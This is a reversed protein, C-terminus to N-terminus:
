RWDLLQVRNSSGLWGKETRAFSKETALKTPDGGGRGITFLEPAESGSAPSSIFAVTQADPSGIPSWNKRETKPLLSVDTNEAGCAWRGKYMPDSGAPYPAYLDIETLTNTTCILTNPDLWDNVTAGQGFPGPQINESHPACTGGCPTITGSPWVLFSQDVKSQVTEPTSAAVADATTASAPIRKVESTSGDLYYFAGDAGFVPSVHQITNSFDSQSGAVADSVDVFQGSKTIWGVHNSNDATVTMTAAVRTLDPSFGQQAIYSSAMNVRPLVAEPGEFTRTAISKGTSPDIATLTVATASADIAIIGSMADAVSGGSGSAAEIASAREAKLYFEIEGSAGQTFAPIPTDAYRTTTVGDLWSVRASDFYTFDTPLGLSRESKKGTPNGDISTEDEPVGGAEVGWTRLDEQTLRGPTDLNFYAVIVRQYRDVGNKATGVDGVFYACGGPPLPSRLDGSLLDATVARAWAPDSIFAQGFEGGSPCGDPVPYSIPTADADDDGLEPGSVSCGALLVM